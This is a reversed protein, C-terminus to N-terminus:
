SSHGTGRTGSDCMCTCAEERSKQAAEALELLVAVDSGNPLSRNRKSIWGGEAAGKSSSEQLFRWGSGEAGGALGLEGFAPFVPESMDSTGLDLGVHARRGAGPPKSSAPFVGDAERHGSVGRLAAGGGATPLGLLTRDASVRRTARDLARFRECPSTM